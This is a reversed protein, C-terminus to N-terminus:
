VQKYLESDKEISRTKDQNKSMRMERLRKEVKEKLSM